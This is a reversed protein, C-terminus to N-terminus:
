LEPLLCSFGDPVSDGIRTREMTHCPLFIKLRISVVLINLHSASNEHRYRDVHLNGGGRCAERLPDSTVILFLGQGGHGPPTQHIDDDARKACPLLPAQVTQVTIKPRYIKVM